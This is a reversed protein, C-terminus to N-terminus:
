RRANKTVVALGSSNSSRVSVHYVFFPAHEPVRADTADRFSHAVAIDDFLHFDNLFNAFHGHLAMDHDDYGCGMLGSTLAEDAIDYGLFVFEEPVPISESESRDMRWIDIVRYDSAPLRKRRAYDILPTPDAWLGFDQWLRGDVVKAHLQEARFPQEWVNSDVSLAFTSRSSLLFQSRRDTTWGQQVPQPKVRLDFGYHYAM